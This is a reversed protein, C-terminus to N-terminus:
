ASVAVAAAANRQMRMQWICMCSVVAMLSWLQGLEGTAGSGKLEFEGVRSLSLSGPDAWVAVVESSSEAQSETEGVAKDSGPGMRVLKWGWRSGGEVSRVEVGRSHRWEFREVRQGPGDGIRMAFWFIERTFTASYRLIETRQEHEHPPLAPLTIAFDQRLRGTAQVAALPPAHDSSSSSSRSSLGSHMTMKGYWGAPWTFIYISESDPDRLQVMIKTWSKKHTATLRRPLSTGAMEPPLQVNAPTSGGQGM